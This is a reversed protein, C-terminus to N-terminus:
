LTSAVPLATWRRPEVDQSNARDIPLLGFFIALLATIM